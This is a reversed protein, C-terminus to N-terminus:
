KQVQLHDVLHFDTENFINWYGLSCVIHFFACMVAVFPLRCIYRQFLAFALGSIIIGKHYGLDSAIEQPLWSRFLLEEVLAVGTATIIGQGVVMFSKGCMILWSVADLSSTTYPLSLNAYGLLVNISQISLVIM